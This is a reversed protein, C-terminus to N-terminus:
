KKELQMNWLVHPCLNEQFIMKGSIVHPLIYLTLHNQFFAFFIPVLWKHNISKPTIM